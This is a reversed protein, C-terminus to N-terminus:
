IYKRHEEKSQLYILINDLYAIIFINLHERLINNVLAQYTAPANTLRFLM